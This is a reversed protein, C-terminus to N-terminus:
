VGALLAKKYTDSDDDTVWQWDDEDEDEGVLEWETAAAGLADVLGLSPWDDEGEKFEADGTSGGQAVAEQEEATRRGCWCHMYSLGCCAHRCYDFQVRPWRHVARVQQRGQRFASYDFHPDWQCSVEHGTINCEDCLDDCGDYDSTCEPGRRAVDAAAHPECECPECECGDCETGDFRIRAGWDNLPADKIHEKAMASGQRRAGLRPNYPPHCPCCTKLAHNGQYKRGRAGGGFRSYYWKRKRSRAGNGRGLKKSVGPANALWGKM